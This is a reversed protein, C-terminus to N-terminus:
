DMLIMKKMARFEGAELKYFYVGSAVRQGQNDRGDWVISHEGPKVSGDVLTRITRGFVNYITLRVTASKPLAYSIITEPNFPNPYNQSLAFDTPILDSNLEVGTPSVHLKNAATTTNNTEVDEDITSDADVKAVVNADGYPQLDPIMFTVQIDEKGGNKDLPGVKHTGLTCPDSALSFEIVSSDCNASGNNTVTAYIVIPGGPVQDTPTFTLASCVLDPKALRRRITVNDIFAGTGYTAADSRFRFKVVGNSTGVIGFHGPGVDSLDIQVYQWGLSEGDLQIAEVDTGGSGVYVRLNDPLYAVYWAHFSLDAKSSYALSFPGYNAWADMNNAYGETGPDRAPVQDRAAACWLSYMGDFAIYTTADWFYKSAGQYYFHTWPSIPFGEEFGELLVIEWGPEDELTLPGAYAVNNTEDNEPINEQFDVISGVYYDGAPLGIPMTCVESFSTAGGGQIAPVSFLGISYDDETIETDTSLYIRARTGESANIEPNSISGSVAITKGHVQTTPSINFSSFLLDPWGTFFRRVVVNDLHVGGPYVTAGDSNFRFAITVSSGGLLSQGQWDALDIEVHEWAAHDGTYSYVPMVGWGTGINAMVRLADTGDVRYWVDFSLDGYTCNRLDFPGATIWTDMDNAYGQTTPNLGLAGGLSRKACWASWVSGGAAIWTSRGWKYSGQLVQEGWNDWIAANEFDDDWITEWDMVKRGGYAVGSTQNGQAMTSMVPLIGLILGVLVLKGFDQSRQSM